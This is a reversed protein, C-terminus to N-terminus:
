WCRLRSYCYRDPRPEPSQAGLRPRCAPGQSNWGIVSSPSSSVATLRRPLDRGASRMKEVLVTTAPLRM